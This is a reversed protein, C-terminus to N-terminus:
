QSKLTSIFKRIAEYIKDLEDDKIVYPPLVYIVNGLPRLLINQDMFFSYISKRIDNTYSTEGSDIEIALITGLVRTDKINRTGQLEKKFSEHRKNIREIQAQCYPHSLLDMSVNAAACAIPNATYSHGHFFTKAFDHSKFASV